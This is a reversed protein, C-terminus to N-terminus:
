LRCVLHRLSQLESTHEESRRRRSSPVCGQIVRHSVDLYVSGRGSPFARIKLKSTSAFDTIVEGVKGATIVFPQHGTAPIAQLPRPFIVRTSTLASLPELQYSAVISPGASRLAWVRKVCM